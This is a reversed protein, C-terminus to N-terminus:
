PPAGSYRPCGVRRRGTSQGLYARTMNRDLGMRELHSLWCFRYSKIEGIINSQAVIEELEASTRVRWSGNGKKSQDCNKNLVKKEAMLLKTDENLPLTWVSM